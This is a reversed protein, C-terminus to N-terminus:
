KQDPFLLRLRGDRAETLCIWPAATAAIDRREPQLISTRGRHFVQLTGPNGSAGPMVGIGILAEGEETEMFASIVHADLAGAVFDMRDLLAGDTGFLLIRLASSGPNLDPGQQLVIAVSRSRADGLLEAWIELDAADTTLGSWSLLEDSSLGRTELLRAFATALQLSDPAADRTREVLQALAPDLDAPLTAVSPGTEAVACGALLLSLLLGPRREGKAM